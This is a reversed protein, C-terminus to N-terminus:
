RSGRHMVVTYLVIGALALIVGLVTEKGMTNSSKVWGLAIVLCTKLQGVVTSTVAEAGNIVLFSSLSILCACGSSLLLLCWQHATVTSWEPFTDTFLTIAGLSIACFPVQKYLLQISSIHLRSHHHAVWVTYLSSCFVGSFAYIIGLTSTSDIVHAIQSAPISRQSLTNSYTVLGVGLCAPILALTANVPIKSSYFFLNVPVTLPTPLIRIIQYCIISSYALSLNMLIINACMILSLPLISLVCTETTTIKLISAHRVICLLIGTITFHYAVFSFHCKSFASDLFISKNTYVQRI